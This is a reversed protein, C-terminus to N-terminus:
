SEGSISIRLITLHDPYASRLKRNVGALLRAAFEYPIGLGVDPSLCKTEVEIESGSRTAVFDSGPFGCYGARSIRWDARSLSHAVRFEQQLHCLRGSPLIESIVRRRFNEKDKQDLEKKIQVCSTIFSYADHIAFEKPFWLRRTSKWRKMLKSLGIETSFLAPAIDRFSMWEELSNNKRQLAAELTSSGIWRLFDPWDAEVDTRSFHSNM